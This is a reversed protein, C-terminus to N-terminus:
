PTSPTVPRVLWPIRRPAVRCSRIRGWLKEILNLDPSYPPLWWVSTGATEIAAEVGIARHLGLNDMVVVDGRRLSSVPYEEVHGPSTTTNMPGDPLPTAERLVGDVRLARILSKRQAPHGAGQATVLHDIRGGQQRATVRDQPAHRRHDGRIREPMKADDEPTLGAPNRSGPKGPEITGHTPLM